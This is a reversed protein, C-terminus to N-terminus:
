CLKPYIILLKINNIYNIYSINIIFKLDLKLIFIDIFHIYIYFFFFIILM